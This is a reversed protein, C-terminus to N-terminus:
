RMVAIEKGLYRAPEEENDATEVDKNYTASNM